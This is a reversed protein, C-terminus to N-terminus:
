KAAGPVVVAVCEIEVLVDKPLRAVEVAARAPKHLSFCEEYVQNMAAFSNMDKLFVLTKVVHELDSGAAELVAQLNTLVQRTQEEVGGPVVEMTKPDLPIQGSCFVFGNAVVAQSYPGIAAPANATSAVRLTPTGSSGSKTCVFRSM